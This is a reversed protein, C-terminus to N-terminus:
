SEWLQGSDSSWCIWDAKIVTMPYYHFSYPVTDSNNVSILIERLRNSLDEPNLNIETSLVIYKHTKEGGCGFKYVLIWFTAVNENLWFLWFFM